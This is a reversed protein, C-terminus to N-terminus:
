VIQRRRAVLAPPTGYGSDGGPSEIKTDRQDATRDSQRPSAATIEILQRRAVDEGGGSGDGTSRASKQDTAAIRQAAGVQKWQEVLEELQPRLAEPEAGRAGADRAGDELPQPGGTYLSHVHRKV